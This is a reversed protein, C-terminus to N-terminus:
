ESNDDKLAIDDKSDIIDVLNDNENNFGGPIRDRLEEILPEIEKNWVDGLSQPTARALTGHTPTPAIINLLCLRLSASFNRLKCLVIVVYERSLNLENEVTFSLPLCSYSFSLYASKIFSHRVM